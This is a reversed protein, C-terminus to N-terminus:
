LIIIDSRNEGEWNLQKELETPGRKRGAGM